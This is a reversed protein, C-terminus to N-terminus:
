DSMLSVHLSRTLSGTGYELITPISAAVKSIPRNLFLIYIVYIIYFMYVVIYVYCIFGM